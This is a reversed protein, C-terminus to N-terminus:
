RRGGPLTCAFPQPLAVGEVHQSRWIWETRSATSQLYMAGEHSADLTLKMEGPAPDLTTETRFDVM